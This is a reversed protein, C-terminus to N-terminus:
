SKEKKKDKKEEKDNGKMAVMTVQTITKGDVETSLSITYETGVALGDFRTSYKYMTTMKARQQSEQHLAAKRMGEYLGISQQRLLLNARLDESRNGIKLEEHDYAGSTAFDPVAHYLLSKVPAETCPTIDM